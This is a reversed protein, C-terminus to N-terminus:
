RRSCFASAARDASYVVCQAHYTPHSVAVGKSQFARWYEAKMIKHEWLIPAPLEVPLDPPLGHIDGDYHGAVKGGKLALEFANDEPNRRLDFGAAALWEATLDEHLRGLLTRRVFRGKRPAAAKPVRVKYYLKRFCEEGMISGGLYDRIPEAADQAELAADIRANIAASLKESATPELNLPM